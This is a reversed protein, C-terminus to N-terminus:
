CHEVYTRAATKAALIEATREVKMAAALTTALVAGMSVTVINKCSENYSYNCESRGSM